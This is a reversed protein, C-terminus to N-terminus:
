PSNGQEPNPSPESDAPQPARQRATHEALLERMREAMGVVLQTAHAAEFDDAQAEPEENPALESDDFSPVLPQVEADHASPISVDLLEQLADPEVDPLDLDPLELEPLEDLEPLEPEEPPTWVDAPELEPPDLLPTVEHRVSEIADSSVSSTYILETATKADCEPDLQELVSEIQAPDVKQTKAKRPKPADPDLWDHAIAESPFDDQPADPFATGKGKFRPIFKPHIYYALRRSEIPYQGAIMILQKEPDLQQLEGPTMLDREFEVKSVSQRNMSSLLGKSGAEGEQEKLGTTKGLLKSLYDANDFDNCRYAVRIHANSVFQNNPGYFKQFQDIGQCIFFWRIGYGATYPIATEVKNMRGFAPFEDMLMLLRHKDPDDDLTETLTDVLQELLLRVLPRLRALDNPPIYLYFSLPHEAYQFERLAFDSASTTRAVLPDKWLDLAVDAGAIWGGQVNESADQTAQAVGQVFDEVTRDEPCEFHLMDELTSHMRAILYAVRGLTKVKETYLVYLVTATLLKKAGNDWFKNEKGGEASGLIEGLNMADRIVNPGRRLELLPNFRASFEDTPNFYIVHSFQSRWWATLNYNEGKIDTVFVSGTHSLLTPVVWGIGKGSRTPAFGLLHEPGNHYIPNGAHDAGTVVSAVKRRAQKADVGEELLLALRAEPSITMGTQEFEERTMFRSSGHSTRHQEPRRTFRYVGYGLAAVLPGLGVGLLHRILLDDAGQGFFRSSWTLIAWPLWVSAGVGEDVFLPEGLYEADYSLIHAFHQTAIQLSVFLGICMWLVPVLAEKIRSKKEM